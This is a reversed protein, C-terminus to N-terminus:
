PSITLYVFAYDTAASAILMQVGLLQENEGSGDFDMDETGGATSAGGVRVHQGIVGAANALVAAEGWTQIWGYYDTTLLRPAVGIAMNTVTTPSIIVNSYTNVALGALHTGNTLATVLTDDEELTLVCTGGSDGAANSKIKYVHGEGTTGDNIYLWGDKYQNATSATGGLTVTVSSAGSAATTIALDMDHNGIGAAAQVVAGAAIDSGGVEVYRFARGDDFSMRTGIKHKQGSTQVKEFGPKGYVTNPFSM